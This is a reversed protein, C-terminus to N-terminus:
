FVLESAPKILVEDIGSPVFGMPEYFAELHPDLIDVYIDDQWFINALQTVFATGFGYHRYTPRILVDSLLVGDKDITDANGYSAM